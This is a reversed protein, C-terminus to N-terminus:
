YSCYAWKPSILLFPHTQISLRSRSTFALPFLSPPLSPSLNSLIFLSHPLFSLFRSPLLLFFFFLHILSWLIQFQFFQFLLLCTIFCIDTCTHASWWFSFTVFHHMFTFVVQFYGLLYYLSWFCCLLKLVYYYYTLSTCVKVLPVSRSTFCVTSAWDMRRREWAKSTCISNGWDKTRSTALQALMSCWTSAPRPQTTVYHATTSVRSRATRM